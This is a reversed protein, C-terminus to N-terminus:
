VEELKGREILEKKLEDILVDHLEDLLFPNDMGRAVDVAYAIGKQFALDILGKLQQTKEYRKLERAKEAFPSVVSVAANGVSQGAASSQSTKEQDFIRELPREKEVGLLARKAVLKKELELIEEEVSSFDVGGDASREPKDDNEFPERYIDPM